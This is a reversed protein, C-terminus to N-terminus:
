EALSPIAIGRRRRTFIARSALLITLIAALQVSSFIPVPFSTGYVLLVDWGGAYTTSGNVDSLTGTSNGSLDPQHWLVGSPTAMTSTESHLTMNVSRTHFSPPSALVSGAIVPNGLSDVSVSVADATGGWAALSLLSGSSDLGMLFLNSYTQVNGTIYLRGSSDSAIGSSIDSGLPSDRWDRQWLLTGNSYFKSITVIGSTCDICGYGGGVSTTGAVYAYGSADVAVGSASDGANGNTNMRWIRQWQLSGTSNFKLLLADTCLGGLGCSAINYTGNPYQLDFSSTVGTVYVNGSSDVALGKGLNSGGYNSGWTEAWIPAGSTSNFKLLIIKSTNNIFAVTGGIYLEGLSTLALAKGFTYNGWNSNGWTRQWFLDGLVNFKLLFAPGVGNSDRVFGTVYVNGTNDLNVSQGSQDFGGRWIKQWSLDGAPTYKLLFVGGFSNTSGTLYINDSADLAVGNGNDDAKGGWTRWFFSGSGFVTPTFFITSFILIFASLSALFGYCLTPQRM